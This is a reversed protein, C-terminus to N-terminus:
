QAFAYENKTKNKERKKKNYYKHMCESPHNNKHQQTQILLQEM